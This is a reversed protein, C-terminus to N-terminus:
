DIVLINKLTPEEPGQIRAGSDIMYHLYDLVEETITEGPLLCPIGPPYVAIMEGSILNLSEALKVQKKTSQFARRPSLVVKAAPPSEIRLSGKKSGAYDAAVEQLAKYFREWDSEDHLLSFMALISHQTEMELQIHYKEKLINGMQYGSVQLGPMSILVKLPDIGKIDSREKFEEHHCHLGKIQNIKEKFKESWQGAQELRYGGEQEMFMRALEMSALLPYSPSTTTLLSVAQRLRAHEPFGPAIHLCAGQNLVPWTKHLGNVAAMAGQALAPAPYDKHFPFHGGHAEDVLVDKQYQGALATISEIDSCTGFYSPSTIFITIIDPDQLLCKEIESVKVTLELGLQDDIRSPIYVPMAGSLVMGGYFSRHCNRPLLIREGEAATSMFLAHIGSSAGNVLYFSEGAGVTQAMLRQSEAIIGQPLHFDDMGGVETVDITAISQLMENVGRGGAHGPMHLRLNEEGRYRCLASYIPIQDNM